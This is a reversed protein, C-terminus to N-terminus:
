TFSAGDLSLFYTTGIMAPRVYVNQVLRRFRRAITLLPVVSLGRPLSPHLDPLCKSCNSLGTEASRVATGHKEPSAM